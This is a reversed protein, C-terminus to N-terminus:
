VLITSCMPLEWHRILVEYVAANWVISKNFRPDRNEWYDQLFHDDTTYCKGTPDNYLKGDKMPFEKIFEWIPSASANGRSESGSRVDYDWYVIKNPCL